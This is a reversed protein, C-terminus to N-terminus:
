SPITRTGTALAGTVGAVAWMETCMCLPLRAGYVLFLAETFPAALIRHPLFFAAAGYVMASPRALSGLFVAELAIRIGACLLVLRGRAPK